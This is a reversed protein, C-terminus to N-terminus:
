LRGSRRGDAQRLLQRHRAMTVVRPRRTILGGFRRILLTVAMVLCVGLGLLSLVPAAVQFLTIVDSMQQYRTNLSDLPWCAADNWCLM